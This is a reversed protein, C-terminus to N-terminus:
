TAIPCASWYRAPLSQITDLPNPMATISCSLMYAYHSFNPASGYLPTRVSSLASADFTLEKGEAQAKGRQNQLRDEVTRFSAMFEALSSIHAGIGPRGLPHFLSVPIDGWQLLAM